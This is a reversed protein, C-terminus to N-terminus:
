SNLTVHKNHFVSLVASFEGRGGATALCAVLLQNRYKKLSDNHKYEPQYM